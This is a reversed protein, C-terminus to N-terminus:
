QASGGARFTQAPLTANAPIVGVSASGELPIEWGGGLAKFLAVLNTELKQSSLILQDQSQYLARESLLLDLMGSLGDRYRGSALDVAQQAANTAAILSRNVEAERNFALLSSEVDALAALVTKEYNYQAEDRRARNLEIGARTRGGDFLSWNVSPGITWYRNNSNLLTNLSISRQGVLGTLSFQPYLQAVAVGIDATAAALQREASRIDPRRRMLESPLVGPLSTPPVPLVGRDALEEALTGPALGLLLDLRYGAQGINEKLVPIQSKILELLTKAQAVDLGTGFGSAQRERALEYSLQQAALNNEATTLRQQSGRFELYNRTVEAQLSILVDNRNEQAAEFSAQASEVARRVGGFIDIEWGSDFGIQYLDRHAGSSRDTYVYSGSIDASPAMAGRAFIYQARAQIIRSVAIKLDYNALSARNILSELLPDNFLTWWHELTAEGTPSGSDIGPEQWDVPLDQRPPQYDPGVPTCAACVSALIGVLLIRVRNLGGPPPSRVDLKDRWYQLMGTGILFPSQLLNLYPRAKSLV